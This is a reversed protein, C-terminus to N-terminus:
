RKGGSSYPEGRLYAKEADNLMTQAIKKFEPLGSAADLAKYYKKPFVLSGVPLTVKVGGQEHTPANAPTEMILKGDPTYVRESREIEVTSSEIDGGMKYEQKPSMLQGAGTAGAAGGGLFPNISFAKIEAKGQKYAEPIDFEYWTNGKADTVITAKKGYLKKFLDEIEDYKRLISEHEPKYIDKSKEKLIREWESKLSLMLDYKRPDEIPSTELLKNKVSEINKNFREVEDPTLAESQIPYQQIKGATERTPYRVKEIGQEAAYQMNEQLLREQHTKGLFAKQEPNAMDGKALRLEEELLKVKKGFLKKGYEGLYDGTTTFNNGKQFHDLEKKAASLEDEIKQLVSDGIEPNKMKQWYDSQQELFHMINPEEKTTMTRAHALVPLEYHNENGMIGKGFKEENSYKIVSTSPVETLLKEYYEKKPYTKLFFEEGDQIESKLYQAIKNESIKVPTDSFRSPVKYFTEGNEIVKEYSKFYPSLKSYYKADDEITKISSKLSSEKTSEYGLFKVGYNSYDGDIDVNRRLPVLKEQVAKRFENYDVKPKGAFRENLVKQLIFKDQQSVDARNIHAQINSVNLEGTKSLQKEFPSGAMTSKVHLGPMEQMQWPTYEKSVAQTTNTALQPQRVANLTNQEAQQITKAADMSEDAFSLGMNPNVENVYFPNLDKKAFEIPNDIARQMMTVKPAYQITGKAAKDLGALAKIPKTFMAPSPTLIDLGLAAYPNKERDVGLYDSLMQQNPIDSKIGEANLAIRTPNPLARELSAEKGQLANVGEAAIAFPTNVLEFAPQVLYKGVVKDASQLLADGPMINNYEGQYGVVSPQTQKHGSGYTNAMVPQSTSGWSFGGSAPVTNQPMLPTPNTSYSAPGFMKEAWSFPPDTDNNQGGNQFKLYPNM